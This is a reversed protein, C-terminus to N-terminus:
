RLIQLLNSYDDTWTRLSNKRVLSSKAKTLAPTGVSVQSRSLLIWTANSGLWDTSGGVVKASHLQYEDALKAVVPELDLYRNSIHFALIGDEKLLSLYVAVAERNMLHTPISDGSFADIALIDYKEFTKDQLENEM